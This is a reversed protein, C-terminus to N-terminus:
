PYVYGHCGASLYFMHFYFYNLLILFGGVTNYRAHSPFLDAIKVGEQRNNANIAITTVNSRLVMFYNEKSKTLVIKLFPNNLCFMCPKVLATKVM